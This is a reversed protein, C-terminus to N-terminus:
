TLLNTPSDEPTNGTKLYRHLGYREVNKDRPDLNALYADREEPIYFRVAHEGDKHYRAYGEASWYIEPSSILTHTADLKFPHNLSKLGSPLGPLGDWVNKWYTKDM